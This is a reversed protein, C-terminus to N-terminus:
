LLPLMSQVAKARAKDRAEPNTLEQKVYKSLFNPRTVVLLAQFLNDRMADMLKLETGLEVDSLLSLAENSSLSKAYRLLGYSRWVRDALADENDKLLQQRCQEEEQVVQAIIKELQEITAEESIGMTSQNSIQYINGLAETGEGYLGRVSYGLQLIARVLRNIRKTMVLAPLHLMVSARLGTGVNSPCATLYGYKENFAYAYKGEIVDDILTAKEWARKLQGGPVMVQIRLHDEENVMIAVSADESVVLSRYSDGEAFAPSIIHKEVLVEREEPSIRAMNVISYEEHNAMKLDNVVHRMRAEVESLAKEDKKTVFTLGKFNRALRIRGSLVISSESKDKKMWGTLPQDLLEAYM